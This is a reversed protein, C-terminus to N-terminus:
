EALVKVPEWIKSAMVLLVVVSAVVVLKKAVSAEVM